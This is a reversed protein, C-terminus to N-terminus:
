CWGACRAHRHPSAARRRLVRRLRKRGETSRTRGDFEPETCLLHNLDDVDGRWKVYVPRPSSSEAPPVPLSSFHRLQELFVAPCFVRPVWGDGM